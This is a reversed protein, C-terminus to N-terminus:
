VIRCLCEIKCVSVQPLCQPVRIASPHPESAPPPSHGTRTSSRDLVTIPPAHRHMGAERTAPRRKFRSQLKPHGCWRRKLCSRRVVRALGPAGRRGGSTKKQLREPAAGPTSCQLLMKCQIEPRRLRMGNTTKALCRTEGQIIWGRAPM